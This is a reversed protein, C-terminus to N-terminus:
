IVEKSEGIVQQVKSLLNPDLQGLLNKQKLVGMVYELREVQRRQDSFYFFFKFKIVIKRM